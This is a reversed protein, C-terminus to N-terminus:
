SCESIWAIHETMVWQIMFIYINTFSEVVQKVKHEYGLQNYVFCFHFSALISQCSAFNLICHSSSWSLTVRSRLHVEVSVVLTTHLSHACTPGKWVIQWVKFLLICFIYLINKIVVYQITEYWCKKKYFYSQPFYTLMITYLYELELKFSIM